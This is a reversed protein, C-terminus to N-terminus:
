INCEICKQLSMTCEDIIILDTKIFKKGYDSNRSIRSSTREVRDLNLPLRFASHVTQCNPLLTAAIGSSATSIVNKNISM